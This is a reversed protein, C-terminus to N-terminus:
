IGNWGEHYPKSTRDFLAKEGATFPRVSRVQPVDASAFADKPMNMQLGTWGEHYPKSTRDFLAMEESTYASATAAAGLAFTTALAIIKLM